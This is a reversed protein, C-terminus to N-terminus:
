LRIEFIDDIAEKQTEFISRGEKSQVECCNCAEPVHEQEYYELIGNNWTLPFLRCISPIIRKPLGDELALKFLICGKQEPLRFICHGDKGVRSRISDGGLFDRDGSWTSEFFDEFAAASLLEIREKHEKILEYTERDVDAGYACCLDTCRSRICGNEDFGKHAYVADDIKAIKIKKM